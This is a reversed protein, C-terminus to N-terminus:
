QSVSPLLTTTATAGDARTATITAQITAQGVGYATSWPFSASWDGAVTQSLPATFSGIVVSLRAANTTSVVRVHVPAGNTLTAPSFSAYFIRIPDSTAAVNSPPIQGFELGASTPQGLNIAATPTPTPPATKQRTPAEQRRAISGLPEQLRAGPFLTPLPRPTPFAPLPPGQAPAQEGDALVHPTVVVILENRTSNNESNRFLGGILPLDGLIPIKNDTREATEQILGGIILTQNDKLRVTTQTDRTSIQPVGNLIGSLSNVVPHIAVTIGGEPTVIPTIDLTVGTQFTQIQSTTYTGAGGGVTTLIGITDGARITATHGSLTTIRPDALVRATGKQIQLNLQASLSLPSRTVAGIGILKSVGTNPDAAPPIETFTTSIVPQSLLLGLNRAISEDLELVETDLVVLPAPVDLKVLFEKALRVSYPDGSLAIEGPSSLATAHVGPVLQQLTQIIAASNTDSAAGGAQGQTPVASRLTIVEFSSASANAGGGGPNFGNPGSQGNGNSELQAIGDGIRQQDVVTGQVSLANLDKDVTIQAGPFSKSILDGVSSADLTRIKYLQTIRSGTPPVDIQAILTKAKNVDDPQGSVVVSSGAVGVRLKPFDHAVARAVDGPRAQTVKVGEAVTPSGAMQQTPPPTDLSAVLTKIQALDAPAARVLISQKSVVSFQAHPFIPKVRDVVTSASITRVSMSEAVSDLPSRVDLSQLVNRIAQGDEPSATVIIANSGRNVSVVAEPFLGRIASAARDAGMFTVSMVAPVRVAPGAGDANTHVVVFVGSKEHYSYGLPTLVAVLAQEITVDHLSVTITGRFDDPIAINAGFRKALDLLVARAQAKSATYSQRSMSASDAPAVLATAALSVLIFLWARRRGMLVRQEKFSKPYITQLM